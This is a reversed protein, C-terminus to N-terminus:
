FMLRFGLQLMRPAYSLNVNQEPQGYTKSVENLTYKGFNAHNFVNFLELIGDIGARGALPFRRQVRLDM